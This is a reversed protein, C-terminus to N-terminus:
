PAAPDLELHWSASKWLSCFLDDRSVGDDFYRGQPRQRIWSALGRKVSPPLQTDLERQKTLWRDTPKRTRASAFWTLTARPLAGPRTAAADFGVRRVVERVFASAVRDDKDRFQRLALQTREDSAATPTPACSFSGRM